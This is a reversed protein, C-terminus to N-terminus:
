LSREQLPIKVKEGVAVLREDRNVHETGSWSPKARKMLSSDAPLLSQLGVRSECVALMLM